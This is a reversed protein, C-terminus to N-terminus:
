CSRAATKPHMANMPRATSALVRRPCSPSNPSSVACTVLEDDLEEPARQPSATSFKGWSSHSSPPMQMPPEALELGQVVWVSVDSHEARPPCHTGCFPSPHEFWHRRSAVQPLSTSSNRSSHSSPPVHIAPGPIPLEQVSSETATSQPMLPIQADESPSPHEADHVISCHLRSPSREATGSPYRREM